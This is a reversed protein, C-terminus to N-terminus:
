SGAGPAAVGPEAVLRIRLDDGTESSLLEIDEISETGDDSGASAEDVYGAREAVALILVDDAGEQFLVWFKLYVGDRISQIQEFDAGTM